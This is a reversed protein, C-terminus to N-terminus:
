YKSISWIIKNKVENTFGSIVIQSTKVIKNENNVFISEEISLKNTSKFLYSSNTTKIIVSMKGMTLSTKCIPTLHFRIHYINKVKNMGISVIEDIGSIENNKKNIILKRKIIKKFNMKYGDHTSLWKIHNEDEITEFSIVKPIRKYSKNEILESINTNNITLTSHAASYRFYNPAKNNYYNISGCNTIIKKM